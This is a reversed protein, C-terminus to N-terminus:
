AFSRGYIRENCEKLAWKVKEPDESLLYVQLDSWYERSYHKSWNRGMYEVAYELTGKKAKKGRVTDSYSTRGSRDVSMM